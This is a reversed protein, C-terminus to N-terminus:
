ETVKHTDSVLGLSESTFDEIFHEMLFLLYKPIGFCFHTIDHSIDSRLYNKRRNTAACKKKKRNERCDIIILSHNYHYISRNETLPPM